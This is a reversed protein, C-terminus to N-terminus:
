AVRDKLDIAVAECEIYKAHFVGDKKYDAFLVFLKSDYKILRPWGTPMADILVTAISRQGSYLRAPHKM